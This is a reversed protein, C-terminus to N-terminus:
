GYCGASVVSLNITMIFPNGLHHQDKSNFTLINMKFQETHLRHEFLCNFVPIIYEKDNNLQIKDVCNQLM